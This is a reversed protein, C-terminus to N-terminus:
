YSVDLKSMEKGLGQLNETLEEISMTNSPVETQVGKTFDLKTRSEIKYNKSDPGKADDLTVDVGRLEHSWQSVWLMVTTNDELKKSADSYTRGGSSLTTPACDDFDKAASSKSLAEGFKKFVEADVSVTYGYSGDKSQVKDSIKLYPNKKYIDTLESKKANDNAYSKYADLLCQATKGQASDQKKLDSISYKIWKNDINELYKMAGSPISIQQKVVSNVVDVIHNVKFYIDGNETTLASAALKVEKGNYEIALEANTDLSPSSNAGFDVMLKKFKITTGSSSFKFDSTIETKTAVMKAKQAKSLADIVVNEPKQYVTYAFAGAGTLILLVVLLVLSIILPTKSKKAPMYPAGYPSPQPPPAVPTVPATQEIQEIQQLENSDKQPQNKM